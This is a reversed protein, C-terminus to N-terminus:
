ATQAGSDRCLVARLRRLQTALSADLSGLPSEVICGGCDLAEDDVVDVKRGAAGALSGLADRLVAADSPHLRLTVDQGRDAQRLVTEVCGQVFERTVAKAGAIQAVTVFAIEGVDNELARIAANLGGAVGDIVKAFAAQMEARQQQAAAAAAAQGERQGQAFGVQQAAEREAELVEQLEALLEARIREELVRTQALPDPAPARLTEGSNDTLPNKSLATTARPQASGLQLRQAAVRPGRILAEM